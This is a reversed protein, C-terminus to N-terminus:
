SPYWYHGSPGVSDCGGGGSHGDCECAGPVTICNCTCVAGPPLPAGCKLTYSKGDLTYNIGTYGPPVTGPVGTPAPPIDTEVPLDEVKGPLVVFEAAIWCGLDESNIIRLWAGDETRSLVLIQEDQKTVGIRDYYTGPGSRLNINGKPVRAEVAQTATLTPTASPKPTDTTSNAHM